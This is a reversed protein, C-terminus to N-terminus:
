DADTLGVASVFRHRSFAPNDIQLQDAIKGTVMAVIKRADFAAEAPHIMEAQALADHLAHAIVKYDKKSM